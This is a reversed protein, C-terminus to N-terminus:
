LFDKYFLLLLFYSLFPHTHTHAHLYFNLQTVQVCSRAYMCVSKLFRDVLINGIALKLNHSTKM